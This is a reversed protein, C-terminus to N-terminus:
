RLINSMAQVFNKSLIISSSKSPHLKKKESIVSTSSNNSKKDSHHNDKAKINITHDADTTETVSEPQLILDDTFVM